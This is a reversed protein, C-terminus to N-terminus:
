VGPGEARSYIGEDANGQYFGIFTYNGYSASLMYKGVLLPSDVQIWDIGNVSYYEGYQAGFIIFKGGGFVMYTISSQNPLDKKTWKIGNTSYLYGQQYSYGAVFIGNGWELSTWLASQPVSTTEWTKGDQSYLATASSSLVVFKDDGYAIKRYSATAPPTVTYWAIADESWIFKEGSIIVFKRNGYAIDTWSASSPLNQAVWTEGDTSWCIKGVGDGGYAIAVFKGNGYAVARWKLSVPLTVTEWQIGDSSIIATSSNSIMAVFKGNGYAACSVTASLPLSNKWWDVGAIYEPPFTLYVGHSRPVSVIKTEGTTLTMAFNEQIDVIKPPSHNGNLTASVRWDGGNPLQFTATGTSTATLTTAGDTATVEAGADVTVVLVAAYEPALSGTVGFIDVGAKINGPVLDPDSVTKNVAQPYYGPPVAVTLGDATVDNGGKTVITGTVKGAAVYATKPALIDGATATADGTDSGPVLTGTVMQNQDNYFQKGALIDGATGANALPDLKPDCTVQYTGPGPVEFSVTGM